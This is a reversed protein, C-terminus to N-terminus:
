SGPLVKEVQNILQKSVARESMGAIFGLLLAIQVRRGPAGAFGALDVSGLKINLIQLDLFLALLAAVVAVFLLRIIPETTVNLYDPIEAFVIGWRRVAVGFWAGAMAGVIVWGYHGLTKYLPETAAHGLGAVVLGILAGGLGWLALYALYRFALRRGVRRLIDARIQEIADIALDTEVAAGICGVKATEKVRNIFERYAGGTPPSPGFWDNEQLLKLINKTEYVQQSLKVQDTPIPHRHNPAPRLDFEEDQLDSVIEFAGAVGGDGAPTPTPTPTPAPTPTTPTDTM